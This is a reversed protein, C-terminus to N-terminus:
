SPVQGAAIPIRRVFDPDAEARAKYVSTQSYAPITEELFVEIRTLRVQIDQLLTRIDTLLDAQAMTATLLAEELTRPEQMDAGMRMGWGKMGHQEPKGADNM